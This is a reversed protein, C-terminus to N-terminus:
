DSDAGEAELEAELDEKAKPERAPKAQEVQAPKPEDVTDAIQLFRNARIHRWDMKEVLEPPVHFVDHRNITHSTMGLSIRQPFPSNNVIAKGM